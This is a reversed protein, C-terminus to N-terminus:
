PYEADLVSLDDGITFRLPEPSTRARYCNSIADWYVLGVAHLFGSHGGEGDHDYFVCQMGEHLELGQRKLDEQTWYNALSNTTWDM